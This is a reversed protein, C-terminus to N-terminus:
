CKGSRLKANREKFNQWCNYVAKGSRDGSKLIENRSVDALSLACTMGHEEKTLQKAKPINNQTM